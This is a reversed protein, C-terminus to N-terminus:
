EFVIDDLYLTIGNKDSNKLVIALKRIIINTMDYFHVNKFIKELNSKIAEYHTCGLVINQIKKDYFKSLNEELYPQIEKSNDDIMKALFPFGIIFCNKNEMYKKIIKSYKITNTTAIVLTPSSLIRKNLLPEFFFFKTNKFKNIIYNKFMSSLTNCAVVVAKIKFHYFFYELISTTHKKLSEYSKNGYPCYKKDIFLLFNENQFVKKIKSYVIEGGSGSDIVLVWDCM